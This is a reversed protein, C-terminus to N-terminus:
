HIMLLLNHMDCRSETSEKQVFPDEQLTELNLRLVSTELYSM